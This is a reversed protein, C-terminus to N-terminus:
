TVAIPNFTSVTVKAKVVGPTDNPKFGWIAFTLDENVRLPSLRTTSRPILTFLVREPKIAQSTHVNWKQNNLMSGGPGDYKRMLQNANGGLEFEVEISFMQLKHETDQGTRTPIIRVILDMPIGFQKHSPAYIPVPNTTGPTPNSTIGLVFADSIWQTPIPSRLPLSNAPLSTRESEPFKFNGKEWDSPPRIPRKIPPSPPPPAVIKSPNPPPKPKPRTDVPPDEAPVLKWKARDADADQAVRILRPSVTTDPPRSTTDASSSSPAEPLKINMVSVFSNLIVATVASSPTNDVFYDTPEGAKNKRKMQSQLVDICSQAFAPFVLMNTKNDFIQKQSVFTATEETNDKQLMPGGNQKWKIICLSDYIEGAVDNVPNKTYVTRYQMQVYEPNTSSGLRFCQQHPPQCITINTRKSGDGHDNNWHAQGPTRDFLCLLTDKELCDLRVTEMRNGGMEEATRWPAHVELNPFAKVVGSRLFFGFTPIQPLYNMNGEGLPTEFYRNLQRKFAQRVIDDEQDLHNGISLAGDIFADFWNTDIYFFRISDQPLHAPDSIMYHAPINHLSLKDLIWSQVIQWDPSAPINIENFPIFVEPGNGNTSGTPIAAAVSSAVTVVKQQLVIREKEPAKFASVPKSLQDEASMPKQLMIEPAPNVLKNVRNATPLANDGAKVDGLQALSTISTMMTSLAAAKGKVLRAGVIDKKADRAAKTIVAGRLRILSATFAQDAIGLTRGLQWAASYTIDVIGLNPDLIQYDSSFNSQLPWWGDDKRTKIPPVYTPSLPSRYLAVTQEGTQLLYRQLSYGDHLRSALRFNVSTRQALPVADLVKSISGTVTTPTASQLGAANRIANDPARLWCEGGDQITHGIGRMTDVFNVTEPPLCLYTWAHLSIMAIWKNQALNRDLPIRLNDEIDMISVLHVIVPKASTIDLPGTRHAHVISYLGKDPLDLGAMAIQNVNRVHSLYKYRSLDPTGDLGGSAHPSPATGDLNYTCVHSEFVDRRVFVVNVQEDRDIPEAEDNDFHPITVKANVPASQSSSAKPWGGMELYEGMALKVAFTAKDQERGVPPPSSHSSIQVTDPFLGAQSVGKLEPETLRIEEEAFTWLAVWPVKSRSRLEPHDPIHDRKQDEEDQRPSGENQWPFHVDEFVMHPLVNNHDALGQPPYVQHIIGPPLNFRPVNVNFQQRSKVTATQSSVLKDWVDQPTNSPRSPPIDPHRLEHDVNIEYKGGQLGPEYYSYLQAFGPDIEGIADPGINDGVSATSVALSAAEITPQDQNRKLHRFVRARPKTGTAM